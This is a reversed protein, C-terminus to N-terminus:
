IKNIVNHYVMHPPTKPNLSVDGLDAYVIDKVDERLDKKVQALISGDTAVIAMGIEIREGGKYIVLPVQKSKPKAM